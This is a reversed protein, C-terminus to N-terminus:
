FDDLVALLQSNAEDDFQMAPADGGGGGGDNEGIYDIGFGVLGYDVGDNKRFQPALFKVYDTGGADVNIRTASAFTAKEWVAM